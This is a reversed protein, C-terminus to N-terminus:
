RNVVVKSKSSLFDQSFISRCHLFTSRVPFFTTSISLPMMSDITQWLFVQGIIIENSVLLLSFEDSDVLKCSTRIEM